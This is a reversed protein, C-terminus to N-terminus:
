TASGKDLIDCLLLNGAPDINVVKGSRFEAWTFIYRPNIILKGPVYCWVNIWYEISKTAFEASKLATILQGTSPAIDPGARWCTDNTDHV